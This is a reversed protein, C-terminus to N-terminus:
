LHSSLKILFSCMCMCSRVLRFPLFCTLMRVKTSNIVNYFLLLLLMLLLSCCYHIVYFMCVHVCTRVCMDHVVMVAVLIYYLFHLLYCIYHTHGLFVMIACQLFVLPVTLFLWLASVTVLAEFGYCDSIGYFM